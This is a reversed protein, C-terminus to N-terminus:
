KTVQQYRSQITSPMWLLVELADLTRQLAGSNAALVEKGRMGMERWKPDFATALDEASPAIHVANAASFISIIDRFNQTYPGVFIPVAFRAPELINHGGRPVLSGGVFAATALEYISALEGISDLLLITGSLPQAQWESRKNFNLDNARLLESVVPFREPHRPALIITAASSETFLQRFAPLLLEEESEVTSGCVLVPGSIASRLKQVVDSRKPAPAEFKLNGSVQVRKEDAGIAILRDRDAPSQALFLDINRLVSSLLGRFTKYRPFSRDSIRANVVAIRANEQHAIRLLNPWFETEALILAKPRLTKFFPRLAFAFDIPLYFVNEEGFRQRALTQGTLTTTSLAVRWSHGLKKQLAQILPTVAMVEGVSVAHVWICNEGARTARLRLPVSGTRESFGARYKGNRLAQWLWYPSTVIMALALAASYFLYM